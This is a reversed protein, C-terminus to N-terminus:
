AKEEMKNFRVLIQLLVTLSHTLSYIQVRRGFFLSDSPAAAEALCHGKLLRRFRAYNDVLRLDAPLSNWLQIPLDSYGSSTNRIKRLYTEVACDSLSSM